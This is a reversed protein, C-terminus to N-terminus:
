SRDREVRPSEPTVIEYRMHEATDHKALMFTTFDGFATRMIAFDRHSERSRKVAKDYAEHYNM